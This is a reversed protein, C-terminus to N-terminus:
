KVAGLIRVLEAKKAEMMAANPAELNLRLLPETNSARVNFWWDGFDVSLGDLHFVKGKGGYLSELKKMMGDKDEVEFNIEGSHAYRLVPEALESMKKGNAAMLNLISILALASSETFNHDKFYFHGSLEAAFIADNDRMQKKIFAHGVRCMMPRGGYKEVDEAYAKTSRLDYLVAAGPHKGLMDRAVIAGAVDARVTRGKEDIFMCRDADGDIAAGLDAGTEMVKKKLAELNKEILPNAEHNPFNADPEMFLPIYDLKMGEFIHPYTLTGAGNAGDIVVKLKRGVGEFKAFSRTFKVFDALVDKKVIKGTGTSPAYSKENYIREIDKIGTDGSIPVADQRCLKFGNYEKPNHSATIMIAAPNGRASFYLMPTDSRGIDIVDAGQETIGRALAEFMSDSSDRVDRGIVVTKCGLFTVFARGIGYAMDANLQDPVTGRIDYAKFISM